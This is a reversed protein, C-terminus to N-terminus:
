KFFDDDDDLLNSILVGSPNKPGVGTVVKSAPLNISGFINDLDDMANSTNFMSSFTNKKTPSETEALVKANENLTPLITNITTASKQADEDADDDDFVINVIDPNKTLNTSEIAPTSINNVPSATLMKPDIIRPEPWNSVIVNPESDDFLDPLEPSTIPPPAPVSLMDSSVHDPMSVLLLPPNATASSTFLVNLDNVPPNAADPKLTSVSSFNDWDLDYLDAAAPASVAPPIPLPSNAATEKSISLMGVSLQHGSSFVTDDKADNATEIHTNEPADPQQNSTFQSVANSLTNWASSAVAKIEDVPIEMPLSHVSSDIEQTGNREHLRSSSDRASNAAPRGIVSRVASAGILSATQNDSSTSDALGEVARMLFEEHKRKELERLNAGTVVTRELIKRQEEIELLEEEASALHPAPDIFVDIFFDIPVRPDREAGDLDVRSFRIRSEELNSFATHFAGRMMTIIEQHSSSAHRIRLLIDGRVLPFPRDLISKCDVVANEDALSFGPISNVNLKSGDAPPSPQSSFLKRGDCWVEVIPRFQIKHPDIGNSEALKEIDTNLGGTGLLGSDYVLDRLDTEFRPIGHFIVREIQIPSAIAPAGDLAVATFRELAALQSPLINNSTMDFHSGIENIASELSDSLGMWVMFASLFTISRTYGRFCHVVLVNEPDSELWRYCSLCLTLHLDLPPAPLGRFSIDMVEGEFHDTNYKKESLNLVLYNAGHKHNLVDSLRNIYSDSPFDIIILNDRIYYVGQLRQLVKGTEIGFLTEKSNVHTKVYSDINQFASKGANKLYDFM